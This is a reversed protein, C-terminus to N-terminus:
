LRLSKYASLKYRHCIALIINCDSTNVYEFIFQSEESTRKLILSNLKIHPDKKDATEGSAYSNLDINYRLSRETNIMSVANATDFLVSNLWQKAQSM